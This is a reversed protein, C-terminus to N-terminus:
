YSNKEVENLLQESAQKLKWQELTDQLKLLTKVREKNLCGPKNCM